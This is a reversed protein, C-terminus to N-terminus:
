PQGTYPATLSDGMAALTITASPLSRGELAEVELRPRPPTLRGRGARVPALASKLSRLLPRYLM